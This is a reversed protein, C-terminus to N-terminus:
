KKEDFQPLLGAERAKKFHGDPDTAWKREIDRKKFFYIKKGKYEISPSEPGVIATPRLPCFRQALLKVEPLKV